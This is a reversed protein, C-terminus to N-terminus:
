LLGSNMQEIIVPWYNDCGHFADADAIRMSQEIGRIVEVVEEESVTRAASRYQKYLVLFEAFCEVSANIFRERAGIESEVAVVCGDHDEDLCIPVSGDFGIRRYNARNELRPLPVSDADFELTWDEKYPLGVPILFRKSSQPVRVDLLSSEAWRKLNERGWFNAIETGKM